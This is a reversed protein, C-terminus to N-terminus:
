KGALPKNEEWDKEMNEVKNYLFDDEQRIKDQISELM